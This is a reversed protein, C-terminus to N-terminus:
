TVESPKSSELPSTTWSRGPSSSPRNSAVAPPIPRVPTIRHAVTARWGTRPVPSNISTSLTPSRSSANPASNRPSASCRTTQRVQEARAHRQSDGVRARWTAPAPASRGAAVGARKATGEIHGPAQQSGGDYSREVGAAERHGRTEPCAPTTRRRSTGGQHPRSAAARRAHHGSETDAPSSRPRRPTM